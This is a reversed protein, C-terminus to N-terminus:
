GTHEHILNVLNDVTRSISFLKAKEKANKVIMERFERDESIKKVAAIIQEQNNPEVLIGEKDDDIIEALNGINTTIVPVGANMAEVVQFSFSEFSTNLIFVDSDNLTYLLAERRVNGELFVKDELDNIRILNQLREKDPGEGAIFLKWERLSPEKM